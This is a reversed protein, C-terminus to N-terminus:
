HKIFKQSWIEKENAIRIIYIGKEQKVCKKFIAESVRL